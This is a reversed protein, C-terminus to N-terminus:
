DVKITLKVMKDFKFGIEQAIKIKKNLGYLEHKFFMYGITITPCVKENNAVNNYKIDYVCRHEFTHFFEDSCHKNIKDLLHDVEDIQPQFNEYERVVIGFKVNLKHREPNFYKPKCSNKIAKDCTIGYWLPTENLIAIM